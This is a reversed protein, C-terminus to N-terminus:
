SIPKPALGMWDLIQTLDQPKRVFWTAMGLDAAPRIDSVISDGVMASHEPRANMTKLIWQYGAKGPKMHTLKEERTLPMKWIESLSLRRSLPFFTEMGIARLIKGALTANTNTFLFVPFREAIIEITQVLEPNPQLFDMSNIKACVRDEFESADADFFQLLVQTSAVGGGFRIELERRKEQFLQQADTPDLGTIGAIMEIATEPFPRILSEHGPCLTGDLDFIVLDLDQFREQQKQLGIEIRDLAKTLISRPSAFNLRVHGPWGFLTGESVAVGFSEMTTAPDVLGTGATDIWALYTGEPRNM